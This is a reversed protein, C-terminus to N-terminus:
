LGLIDGSSQVNDSIAFMYSPHWYLVTNTAERTDRFEIIIIYRYNWSTSSELVDVYIKSSYGSWSALSKICVSYATILWRRCIKLSSLAAAFSLDGDGVLLVRADKYGQPIPQSTEPSSVRELAANTVESVEGSNFAVAITSDDRLQSFRTAFHTRGSCSAIGRKEIKVPTLGRHSASSQRLNVGLASTWFSSCNKNLGFLCLCCSILIPKKLYHLSRTFCLYATTGVMKERNLQITWAALGSTLASGQWLRTRSWWRCVKTFSLGKEKKHHFTHAM